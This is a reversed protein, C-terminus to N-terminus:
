TPIRSCRIPATTPGTCSRSTPGSSISRWSSASRAARPEQIERSPHQLVLRARGLAHRGAARRAQRPRGQDGPFDYRTAWIRSTFEERFLYNRGTFGEFAVDRDRYFEYRVFTSITRASRSRCTPAGGIRSATTSSSAGPRSAASRTPAPASRRKLRADRRVPAKRITPARSSRCRRWSCRCTAAAAKRSACSWRRTTPRRSAPSTACSSRSSRTARRRSSTSRFAVDHATMRSGDHFKAEPRMLFRYTLGDSSIRVARAALGYMADPEDGARVMLRRLPGSWASRPTARSSTATSRISPSSTRTSSAADLRDALVARGEAGESQRIRIAQLRSSIQPRRLRVHRPARRGTCSCAVHATPAVVTHRRAPASCCLM